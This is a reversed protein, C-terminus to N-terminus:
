KRCYLLPKSSTRGSITEITPFIKRLEQEVRSANCLNPHLEIVLANVTRLLDPETCIFAEEAGEIDIKMLDVPQDPFTTNLVERLTMGQVEVPGAASVRHSM